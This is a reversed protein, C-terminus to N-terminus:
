SPLWTNSRSIIFSINRINLYETDNEFNLKQINSIDFTNQVM